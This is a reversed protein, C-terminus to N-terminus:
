SIRTLLGIDNGLEDWIHVAGDILVAAHTGTLWTYRLVADCVRDGTKADDQALSTTLQQGDISWTGSQVICGDSAELSGDARSSCM